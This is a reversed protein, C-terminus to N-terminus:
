ARGNPKRAAQPSAGSVFQRGMAMVSEAMANAYESPPQAALWQFHLAENAWQQQAQMLGMWTQNWQSQNEFQSAWLDRMLQIGNCLQESAMQMGTLQARFPDKSQTIQQIKEQATIMGLRQHSLGIEAWRIWQRQAHGLTALAHEFQNQAHPAQLNIM